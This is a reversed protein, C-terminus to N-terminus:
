AFVGLRPFDSSERTWAYVKSYTRGNEAALFAKIWASLQWLSRDPGSAALRRGASQICWRRLSLAPDDAHHGTDSAVRRGFSEVAEPDHGQRVALYRFASVVGAQLPVGTSRGASILAKGYATAADLGDPDLHYVALLEDPDFAYVGAWGRDTRHLSDYIQIVRITAALASTHKAGEVAFVNSGTRKWGIDIRAFAAPDVDLVVVTTIVADAEIVAALTHQGNLLVNNWGVIVHAQGTFMWQGTAMKRALIMKRSQSLPRNATNQALLDKALAADIREISATPVPTM